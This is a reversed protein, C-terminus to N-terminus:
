KCFGCSKACTSKKLSESFVPNTCYDRLRNIPCWPRDMCSSSSTSVIPQPRSPPLGSSIKESLTSRTVLATNWSRKHRM